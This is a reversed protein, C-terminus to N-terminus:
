NWDHIRRLTVEPLMPRFEPSEIEACLERIFEIKEEEPVDSRTLYRDLEEFLEAAARATKAEDKM